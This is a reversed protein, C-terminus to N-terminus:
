VLRRRRSKAILLRTGQQAAKLGERDGILCSRISGLGDRIQLPDLGYRSTGRELDREMRDWISRQGRQPEIPCFFRDREGVHQRHELVEAQAHYGFFREPDVAGIARCNPYM